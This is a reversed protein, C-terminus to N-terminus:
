KIPKLTPFAIVDRISPADSLLMVFRDIGLGMGGTPPMGYELAEVFDLDPLHDDGDSKKQFRELQDIPDSLESFANAVEFGAMFTEFRETLHPAEPHKKSLPSVAVPLDTIHTPQILTHEVVSDFVDAVVKGWESALSNVGLSKAASHAEQLDMHDEFNIGTVEQISDLMSIRKWPSSFSIKQGQYTIEKQGCVKQVVDSMMNETLDMIDHYNAYAQYLEITTFEPNHRSSVGENRFCRNMEFVKDSLGGIILKKLYLEPAIRLYLNCDLTNHHTVFPKAVAGGALTHLIPTEVELFDKELLWSRIAQICRSRVLFRKKAEDNMILDLYRKRYRTEVDELGHYKEPLTALSKTLIQFASADVTLEGRPTRRINGFVGLIDGVDLLPLFDKLKEQMEKSCFVQISATHDQLVIFMYSNRIARIRGAIRVEGESSEGAPLIKHKTQLEEFTASRQFANAFPDIGMEKLSQIKAIRQKKLHNDSM